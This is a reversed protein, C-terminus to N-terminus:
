SGNGLATYIFDVSVNSGAWIRVLKLSKWAFLVNLMTWATKKPPKTRSYALEVSLLLLHHVSASSLLLMLKSAPLWALKQHIQLKFQLLPPLQHRLHLLLLLFM